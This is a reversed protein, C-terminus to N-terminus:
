ELATARGADDRQVPRLREIGDREAHHMRQARLQGGPSVVVSNRADDDHGLALAGERSAAIDAM